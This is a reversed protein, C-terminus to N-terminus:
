GHHVLIFVLLDLNLEEMIFAFGGKTIVLSCIHQCNFGICTWSVSLERRKETGRAAQQRYKAKGRRTDRRDKLEVAPICLSRQAPVWCVCQTHRGSPPFMGRIDDARRNM